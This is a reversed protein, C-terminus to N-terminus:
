NCLYVVRNVRLVAIEVNLWNVRGLFAAQAKREDARVAEEVRRM